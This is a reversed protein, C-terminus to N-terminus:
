ASKKAVRRSSALDDVPVCDDDGVSVPGDIPLPVAACRGNAPLLRPALSRKRQAARRVSWCQIPNMARHFRACTAPPLPQQSMGAQAFPSSVIQPSLKANEGAFAPARYTRHCHKGSFGLLPWSATRASGKRPPQFGTAEVAFLICVPRFPSCPIFVRAATAQFAPSGSVMSVISMSPGFAPSTSTSILPSRADAVGVGVRQRAGIRFAEEGRTEAMFAGADHALDPGPTVRQFGAIMDDREVRRFAPLAFGTERAAGIEAGRDAGRLALAQHRVAGAAEAAVAVRDEVIHAARGEGVERHQRLDRQRFHALVRGEVLDAVDAAAHGGADAGDDVGGLDPGAGIDRHESKPPMPSLTMWPARMTPASLIMPMSGIGALAGHRLFEAHRM